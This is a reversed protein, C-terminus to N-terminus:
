RALFSGDRLYEAVKVAVKAESDTKYEREDAGVLIRRSGRVGLWRLPEPEWKRAEVGVWPLTTRETTTGNVLEAMTRGALNAAAVGEGVYGGLSGMGTAADYSLGPLWNRPIALVGGWRHTIRADSLMPFLECLTAAILEHAELVHETDRDIRSGFLYPVGRGGFALRNDETRQGYIVLYRDDAFTPRSTLGIQDFISEDLPETAVMLSYVPIFQRKLGPLDRTYAETARVVHRARIVMDPESPGSGVTVVGPGISTVATDEVITVGLAEVARALGTVLKAPDIAACHPTFIGSLVNTAGLMEQAAEAELFRVDEEGFGQSREHEVEARQRDAQPQNRAVRIVGGKAYDCDIGEAICVRAVEDVTDFMARQLRIAEAMSSRAAYKEASGAIMGECWGGNRGSAGFGCFEREIVLISLNPNVKALYYATWLGSYGGGIIAVDVETPADSGLATLSPRAKIPPDLRDLWMAGTTASPVTSVIPPKGSSQNAPTTM